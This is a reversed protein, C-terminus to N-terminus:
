AGMMPCLMFLNSTGLAQHAGALILFETLCLSDMQPVTLFLRCPSTLCTPRIKTLPAVQVAQMMGTDALFQLGM